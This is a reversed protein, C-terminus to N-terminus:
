ELLEKYAELKSQLKLLEVNYDSFKKQIGQAVIQTNKIKDQIETIKKNVEKSKNEIQELDM